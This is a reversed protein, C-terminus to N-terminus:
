NKKDDKSEEKSEKSDEKAKALDLKVDPLKKNLEKVVEDTIDMSDKAYLLGGKPLVADIKKQDALGKVIELTVKQAQNLATAYAAQLVRTREEFEGRIKKVKDDFEQAKKAFADQALVNRQKKIEEGEKALAKDKEQADTTKKANAEEVQKNLSAIATSKKSLEQMDVMGFETAFAPTSALTVVGVAAIAVYKRFKLM